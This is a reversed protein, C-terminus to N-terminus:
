RAAGCHSRPQSDIVAPTYHDAGPRANALVNGQKVANGKTPAIADAAVASAVDAIRGHLVLYADARVRHDQTGHRDTTAATEGSSCNNGVVHWRM